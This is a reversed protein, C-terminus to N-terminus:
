VNLWSEKARWGCILALVFLALWAGWQYLPWVVYAVAATSSRSSEVAIVAWISTLLIGIELALFLGAGVQTRSARATAAAAVVPSTIWLILVPSSLFAEGGDGISGWVIALAIALAYGLALWCGARSVSDRV